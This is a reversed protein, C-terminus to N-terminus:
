AKGMPQTETREWERMMRGAVAFILLAATNMGLLFTAACAWYPHLEIWM